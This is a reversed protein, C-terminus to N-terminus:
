ISATRLIFALETSVNVGVVWELWQGQKQLEAGENVLEREIINDVSWTDGGIEGVDGGVSYTGGVISGASPGHTGRRVSGNNCFLFNCAECGGPAGSVLVGALCLSGELIGVDDDDRSTNGTRTGGVSSTAEGASKPQSYTIPLGPM